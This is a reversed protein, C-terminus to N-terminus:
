LYAKVRQHLQDLPLLGTIKNMMRGHRFIMVTPVSRIAYSGAHETAYAVNAKAVRIQDPLQNQLDRMVGSMVRCPACTDSYFQLLLPKEDTDAIAADISGDDLEEPRSRSGFLKSMLGMM